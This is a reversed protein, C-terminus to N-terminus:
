FELEYFLLTVDISVAVAKEGAPMELKKSIQSWVGFPLGIPSRLFTPALPPPNPKFAPIVVLTFTDGAFAWLICTRM